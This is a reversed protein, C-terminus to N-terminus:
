SLQPYVRQSGSPGWTQDEVVAGPHGRGEGESSEAWTGGGGEKGTGGVKMGQAEWRGVGLGPERVPM